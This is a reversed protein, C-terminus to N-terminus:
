DMGEHCNILQSRVVPLLGESRRCRNSAWSKQGSSRRPSTRVIAPSPDAALGVTSWTRLVTPSVNGALPVLTVEKEDGPEFRVATTAPVDLRMGFAAARDFALYRNAKIIRVKHNLRVTSTRFANGLATRWSGVCNTLCTTSLEQMRRSRNALQLVTVGSTRNANAAGDSACSAVPGGTHISPKKLPRPVQSKSSEETETQRCADSRRSTTPSLKEFVDRLILDAGEIAGITGIGVDISM